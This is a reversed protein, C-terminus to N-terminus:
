PKGGTSKKDSIFLSNYLRDMYRIRHYADFRRKYNGRWSQYSTRLDSYNMKGTDVLVKFKKLKVRMRKTSDKSPRRLIKGSPLLSYKGKLFEVGQSLKIIRTKRMNVNIKYLDCVKIIENLCYTLYEKSEHLLYLDDMYRGYYKIRLKEKIFHDLKDPFFIATVQSVQSGLGLSKGDGFVKIFSRVLERIHQDKIKGDIMKYLIEHDINDFFKSFDISLAYGNNSKNKRYFKTMHLIFRKIAFHVGKGKMSAGNDYILSNTLIPVLVEDCLCKQVVRESIHISRIRRIKGRERLTFEVFGNHIEEGALLKRYLVMINRLSNANFRQISEKWSVGLMSKKFAQYLNDIDAVREFDDYQSLKNKRKAEREAVRRQFRAERREASNM